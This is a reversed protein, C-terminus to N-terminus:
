KQALHTSATTRTRITASGGEDVLSSHFKADLLDSVLRIIEGIGKLFNNWNSIATQVNENHIKMIDERKLGEPVEGPLVVLHDGDIQATTWALVKAQVNFNKSEIEGSPKLSITSNKMDAEATIVVVSTTDKLEALIM